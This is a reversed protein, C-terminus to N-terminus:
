AARIHRVHSAISEVLHQAEKTGDDYTCALEYAMLYFKILEKKPISDLAELGAMIDIGSRQTRIPIAADLAASQADKPTHNPADESSDVSETDSSNNAQILVESATSYGEDHGSERDKFWSLADIAAEQEAVKKRRGKGYFERTSVVGHRQLQLDVRSTFGSFDQWTHYQPPERKDKPLWTRHQHYKQQLLSKTSM